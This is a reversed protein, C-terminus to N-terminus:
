EKDIRVLLFRLVEETIKLVRDVEVTAENDAKFEIVVYFGETNDEVEYALRRKGWKEVKEIEGDRTTVIGTVRQLLADIAEEDLQPNIVLMLEYTRM